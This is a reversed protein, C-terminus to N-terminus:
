NIFPSVSLLLQMVEHSCTGYVAFIEANKKIASLRQWTHINQELPVICFKKPKHQM